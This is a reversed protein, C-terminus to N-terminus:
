YLVRYMRYGVFYYDTVVGDRRCLITHSHGDPPRSWADLQAQLHLVIPNDWTALYQYDYTDEDDVDHWHSTKPKRKTMREFVTRYLSTALVCKAVTTENACFFTVLFHRLLFVARENACPRSSSRICFFAWTQAWLCNYARGYVSDFCFYCVVVGCRVTENR